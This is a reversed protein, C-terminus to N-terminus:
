TPSVNDPFRDRTEDTQWLTFACIVLPNRQGPGTMSKEM